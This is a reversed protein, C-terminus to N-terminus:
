PPAASTLYDRLEATSFGYPGKGGQYAIVGDANVVYLREPWAGFARDAANEMTDLLLPVTLGLRERCTEALLRREELDRPQRVEIADRRNSEVQWGDSPHAEQIYLFWFAFQEGFEGYLAEM